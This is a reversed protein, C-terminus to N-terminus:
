NWKRVIPITIIATTIIILVNFV